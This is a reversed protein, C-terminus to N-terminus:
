RKPDAEVARVVFRLRGGPVPSDFPWCTALTLM